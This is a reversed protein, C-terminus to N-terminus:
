FPQSARQRRAERRQAESMRQGAGPVSTGRRERSAVRQSTPSGGRPGIPGSQRETERFRREIQRSERRGAVPPSSSGSSPGAPAGTSPGLGVTPAKTAKRAPSSGSGALKAAKGAPGPVAGAVKAVAGKAGSANFGYAALLVVGFAGIVTGATLAAIGSLWKVGGRTLFCPGSFFLFGPLQIVCTSLDSGTASAGATGQGSGTSTGTGVTGSVGPSKGGVAQSLAVPYQGSQCGKCWPSSNIASFIDSLSANGVLSSVIKTYFSGQLFRGMQAVGDAVNDYEYIPSSSGCQAVCTTAGAGRGSTALANNTVSGESQAWLNLALLSNPYQADMGDNTLPAPTGLYRLLEYEWEPYKAM